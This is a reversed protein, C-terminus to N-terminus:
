RFAAPLSRMLWSESSRGRTRYRPSGLTSTSSASPPSSRSRTPFAMWSAMLGKNNCVGNGILVDGERWASHHEPAAAQLPTLTEEKAITTDLHGNFLLSPGGGAGSVRAAINPRDPFLAVRRPQFEHKALWEYVYEAVPGEEGTPSDFNGLALALEVVEEEDIQALVGALLNESVGLEDGSM